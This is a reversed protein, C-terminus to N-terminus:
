KLKGSMLGKCREGSDGMSGKRSCEMGGSSNRLSVLCTVSPLIYPSRGGAVTSGGAWPGLRSGGFGGHGM